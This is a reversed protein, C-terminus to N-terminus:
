NSEEIQINEKICELLEIYNPKALGIEKVYLSTYGKEASTWTKSRLLWVIQADDDWLVNNCADNLHKELNDGDPRTFHPTTNKLEKKCLTLSKNVPLAFHVIVLLPGSLLPLADSPLQQKVYKRTIQMTTSSPNYAKGRAIKVSIKPKPTYPIKIKYSSM